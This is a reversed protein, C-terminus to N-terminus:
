IPRQCGSCRVSGDWPIACSACTLGYCARCMVPTRGCTMCEYNRAEVRVFARRPTHRRKFRPRESYWPM